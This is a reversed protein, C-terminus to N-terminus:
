SAADLKAVDRRMRELREDLPLGAYHLIRAGRLEEDTANKALVNWDQSIFKTRASLWTDRVQRVPRPNIRAMRWLMGRAVRSPTRSQASPPTRYGLCHMVAANEWFHHWIFREQAWIEELARQSEAGARLLMVGTNPLRDRDWEHEVLYLLDHDNLEEAIDRDLRAVLTDADVWVCVEYSRLAERLLVIKSWAPPRGHSMSRHESILDYGHLEAYQMLRSRGLDGLARQPGEALTCIAKSSGM